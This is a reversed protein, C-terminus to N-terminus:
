PGTGVGDCRWGDVTLYMHAMRTYVLAGDPADDGEYEHTNGAMLYMAALENEPILVTTYSFNFSKADGSADTGAEARTITTKVYSCAYKSDPTARLRAGEYAETWARAVEEYSQGADPIVVDGQLGRIEAEDYWSHLAFFITGDFWPTTDLVGASLRISQGDLTCLVTDSGQWCQIAASGDPSELKLSSVADSFESAGGDAYSWDFSNEFGDTKDPGNPADSPMEYRGGGAGDPTSLTMVVTGKSVVADLVEKAQAAADAPVPEAEKDFASLLGDQELANTLSERFAPSGPPGEAIVSDLLVRQADHAFFVLYEGDPAGLGSVWGAEDVTVGGVILVDEPYESHFEYGFSYVEVILDPRDAVPHDTYSLNLKSIRWDDFSQDAPANEDGNKMARYAALARNKAATLVEDQASVGARVPDSTGGNEYVLLSGDDFYVYRHFYASRGDWDPMTVFGRVTLYRGNTDLMADDWYNMEPWADALLAPLDAEIVRGDRSYFIQTDSVLENEGDGDMDLIESVGYTRALLVPTSDDTVYYYDNFMVGEHESRKGPYSIVIGDHGFLDSFFSFAGAYAYDDPLTLFCGVDWVTMEGNEVAEDYIVAAYTNGDTSRYARIVSDGVSYGGLREACDDTHREVTVAPADYPSLSSLPITMAPDGEPLVISIAPKESPLNTVFQYGEETERLTVCKWGDAMFHDDYYLRTLDGEREGTAITVRARYNTDGHFYYYADYDALYTFSELGTKETDELSMGLNETLVADMNARSIKECPSDPNGDWGNAAIVAEQEAQTATEVEGSGCYFLEFLNIKEPADYRSSLFQNRINIYEGNFFEENFYRLEDGTLPGNEPVTAGTFTCAALVLALITVATVAAAANKRKEAIRSIRDKLRRKGSTMTTASLLPNATGHRVPILSLLTQGYSFREADGLRRLTAEDCALECDTKSAAAAAWVLPNFWYVTLCVCRLLSWLPDLHRAHTQEHALVYRQSDPSAAAAPTLYIVPRFLGFLCPSSLGDCIYVPYNCGEVDYRTRNKRLKRWFLLNTALFFSAMVAVGVKWVADLLAGVTVPEAPEALAPSDASLAPDGADPAEAAEVDPQAQEIVTNDPVTTPTTPLVYITQAMSLTMAAQAQEGANLVSLSMAPLTVPVLLRALVLAWLAYQLRRSVTKRFLLRLALLALILASSTILIEKM